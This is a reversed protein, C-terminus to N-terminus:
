VATNGVNFADALTAGLANTIGAAVAGATNFKCYSLKVTAAGSALGLPTGTGTKRFTCFEFSGTAGNPITAGDKDTDTPAFKMNKVVGSFTTPAWTAPWPTWADAPNQGPLSLVCASMEGSFTGGHGFSSEGAACNEAFGSFVGSAGGFSLTGGRCNSAHGSFTGGVGGFSGAAAKCNVVIGSCNNGNGGFGENGSVICDVAYGGFGGRGFSNASALCDFARGYFGSLGFSSAGAICSSFNVDTEVANGFSSDGATCSYFRAGNKITGGNCFSSNGGTCRMLTGAIQGSKAFSDDGATCDILLSGSQIQSGGFSNTGATCNKIIASGQIIGGDAFSHNGATCDKATGTFQGSNGGFAYDNAVCNIYTGGYITGQRMSWSAGGNDDFICNEYVNGVDNGPGFLACADTPDNTVRTSATNQITVGRIGATFPNGVVVTGSSSAAVVSTILVHLPDGTIGALDVGEVMELPTTGVDYTGPPVLAVARNYYRDIPLGNPTLAAAAAYAALLALGNAVPDNTTQVVIFADNAYLQSAALFNTLVERHKSPTIQKTSNNPLNAAVLTLLESLTNPM